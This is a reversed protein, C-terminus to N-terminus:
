MIQKIIQNIQYNIEYEEPHKVPVPAIMGTFCGLIIHTFDGTGFWLIVDSPWLLNFVDRRDYVGMLSYQVLIFMKNEASECLM